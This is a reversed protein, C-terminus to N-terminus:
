FWVTIAGVHREVATNWLRSAALDLICAESVLLAGTM